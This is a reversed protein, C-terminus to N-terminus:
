NLIAILILSVIIIIFSFLCFYKVPMHIKLHGIRKSEQYFPRFRFYFVVVGLLGTIIFRLVGKIGLFNYLHSDFEKLENSYVFRLIPFAIILIIALAILVEIFTFGKNKSYYKMKFTNLRGLASM